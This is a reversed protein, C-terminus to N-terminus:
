SKVSAKAFGKQGCLLNFVSVLGTAPELYNPVRVIARCRKPSHALGGASEHARRTELSVVTSLPRTM